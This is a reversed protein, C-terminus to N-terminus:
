QVKRQYDALRVQYNAIASSLADQTQRNLTEADLLDTITETGAKYKETSLRLNEAAQEVSTKQVQIQEFAEEVNSWAAEIDVILKERADDADNKAQQVRMKQRKIAHAGGWWDTIPISVTGLVLGNNINTSLYKQADDSLGGMGLHFGMVGVAVTPLLKGREMRVQLQQAEVNKLALQMEVRNNVVSRADAMTAEHNLATTTGPTIDFAISDNKGNDTQYYGIEQALLLLLVHQANNVKLRNSTLEQQHIKVKLLDNHTAVGAKVFNEVQGFVAQLQKDAADLTGLNYKLQAIQWFHETVKQMVDKEKLDRQLIMVDTQLEALKNGTHIQGGAYLPQLATIAVSYASQFERISYPQGVFPEFQDGFILIEPPITGDRKILKDFMYFAMVNASIKPAYKTAAELQQQTAAKIDLAANQLTRNYQRAMELCQDITYAGQAHGSFATFLVLLTLIHKKM